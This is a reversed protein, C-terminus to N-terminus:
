ILVGVKKESADSAGEKKATGQFSVAVAEGVCREKGALSLQLLQCM